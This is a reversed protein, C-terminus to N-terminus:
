VCNTEHWAVLEEVQRDTKMNWFSEGQGEIDGTNNVQLLVQLLVTQVLSQCLAPYPIILLFVKVDVFIHCLSQRREKESTSLCIDLRLRYRVTPRM